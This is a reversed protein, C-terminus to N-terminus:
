EPLFFSHQSNHNNLNQAYAIALTPTLEFDTQSQDIFVIAPSGKKSSIKSISYLAFFVISQCAQLPHAPSNQSIRNDQLNVAKLDFITDNM